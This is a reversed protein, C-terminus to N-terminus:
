SLDSTAENTFTCKVFGDLNSCQVIVNRSVPANAEIQCAGHNALCVPHHVCRVSM